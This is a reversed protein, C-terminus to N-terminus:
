NRQQLNKCNTLLLLFHLVSAKMNKPFPARIRSCIRLFHPVFEEYIRLFHACIGLLKNALSISIYNHSLPWSSCCCCCCIILLKGIGNVDDIRNFLVTLLHSRSDCFFRLTHYSSSSSGHHHHGHAVAQQKKSAAPTCDLVELSLETPDDQSATVKAIHEFSIHDEAVLNNTAAAASSSLPSVSIGHELVRLLLLLLRTSGGGGGRTSSRGTQQRVLFVQYDM